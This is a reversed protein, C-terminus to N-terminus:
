NRRRRNGPNGGQRGREGLQKIRELQRLEQETITGETKKRELEKMRAQFQQRQRMDGKMAGYPRRVPLATSPSGFERRLANVRAERQEPPLKKLQERIEARTPLAKSPQGNEAASGLSTGAALIVAM